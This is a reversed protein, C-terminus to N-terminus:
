GDCVGLSGGYDWWNRRPISFFVPWNHIEGETPTSRVCHSSLLYLNIVFISLWGFMQVTTPKRVPDAIELQNAAHRLMGTIRNHLTHVTSYQVAPLQGDSPRAAGWQGSEGSSSIQWWWRAGGCDDATRRERGCSRVSCGVVWWGVWWHLTLVKPITCNVPRCEM